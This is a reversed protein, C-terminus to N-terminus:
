ALPPTVVVIGCVAQYVDPAYGKENPHWFREPSSLALGIIWRHVFGRLRGLHLLGVGQVFPTPSPYAMVTSIGWIFNVLDLMIAM